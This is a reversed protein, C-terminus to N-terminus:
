TIMTEHASGSNKKEPSPYLPYNHKDAPSFTKHLKYFFFFSSQFLLFLLNM